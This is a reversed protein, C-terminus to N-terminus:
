NFPNKWSILYEYPDGSIRVQDTINFDVAGNNLTIRMDSLDLGSSPLSDKIKFSVLTSPLIGTGTPTIDTIEPQYKDQAFESWDIYKCLDAVAKEIEADLTKETIDYVVKTPVKGGNAAPYTTGVELIWKADGEADRSKLTYQKFTFNFKVGKTSNLSHRVFVEAM